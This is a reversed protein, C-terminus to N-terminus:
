SQFNTNEDLFKLDYKAEGSENIEMIIYSPRRGDQRPYTLSGPNLVTLNKQIDVVPKHTHGYMVIDYRRAIAERRIFENGQSVYYYHGHTLLVRRGEIDLEKEKPLTSFFDNNGQVMDVPCGCAEEMMQESGEVDGCHIMHDIPAEKELVKLFNGDRRHTDSVILIKM